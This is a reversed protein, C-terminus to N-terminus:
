RINSLISLFENYANKYRTEINNSKVWAEIKYGSGRKRPLTAYEEMTKFYGIIGDLKHGLYSEDFWWENSILKWVKLEEPLACNKCIDLLKKAEEQLKILRESINMAFTCRAVLESFKEKGIAETLKTYAGKVIEVDKYTAKRNHAIKNRIFDLESFTSGVIDKQSFIHKFVDKWNNNREIIKKLDPFDIYYVPHLPILQTWKVNREYDLGRRYKQLIDGPLRNKYWRPGEVSKLSDIILERLATEICYLYCYIEINEKPVLKINM